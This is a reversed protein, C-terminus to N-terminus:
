IFLSKKLKVETVLKTNSNHKLQNHFESKSLLWHNHFKNLILKFTCNEIKM